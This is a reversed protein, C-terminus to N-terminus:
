IVYIPFLDVYHFSAVQTALVIQNSISIVGISMYYTNRYQLTIIYMVLLNNAYKYMMIGIRNVVLKNLPSINLQKFITIIPINDNSFTIIRAVIKHTLYFQKPHCNTANGM